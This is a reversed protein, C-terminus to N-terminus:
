GVAGQERSLLAAPVEETNEQHLGKPLLSIAGVRGKAAQLGAKVGANTRRGQCTNCVGQRGKCGEGTAGGSGPVM